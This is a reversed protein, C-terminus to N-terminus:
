PDKTTVVNTEAKEALNIITAKEDEHSPKGSNFKIAVATIRSNLSSIHRSAIFIDTKTYKPIQWFGQHVDVLVSHMTKSWTACHYLITILVCVNTKQCTQLIFMELNHVWTVLILMNSNNVVKVPVDFSFQWDPHLCYTNPGLPLFHGM